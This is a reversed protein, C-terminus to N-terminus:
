QKNLSIEHGNKFSDASEAHLIIESGGPINIDREITQIALPVIKRNYRMEITVEQLEL